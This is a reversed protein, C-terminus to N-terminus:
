IALVSETMRKKQVKRKKVKRSCVHCEKQRRETGSRIAPPTLPSLARRSIQSREREWESEM